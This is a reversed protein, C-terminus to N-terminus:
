DDAKLGAFLLEWEDGPPGEGSFAEFTRNRAGPYMLAAVCIRAVDARPIIGTGTDGQELRVPQGGPKNVLGGPRVITYPVGSDRVAQEGKAKWILVNDFMKNLMHSEDTVGSSSILVVQNLGADAAANALNKVGGYDVFEPGNSPDGRGAGIASVIASVDDLAADITERQRVDGEAYDVDDGLEKKASDMDRVFARVRFGNALLEKVVQSGTGGAAGAVLVLEM